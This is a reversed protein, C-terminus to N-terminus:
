GHKEELLRLMERRRAFEDELKKTLEQVKKTNEENYKENIM